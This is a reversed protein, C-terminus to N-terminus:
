FFLTGLTLSYDIVLQPRDAPTGFDSTSFAHADNSETDMKLLFGNNVFSGGPIMQEIQSATLTIQKEGNAEAADLSISGIDTQECDAPDFAGATTWNNGTSYVNWTSQLEVSSQIFRFIRLTRTNDAQEAAHWISLIASNITAGSPIVSLDFKLLTRQTRSGVNNEGTWMNADAGNNQTPLDSIIYNDNGDAANPKITVIPM